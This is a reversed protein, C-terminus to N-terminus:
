TRHSPYISPAPHLLCSTIPKSAAMNLQSLRSVGAGAQDHKNTVKDIEDIFVIGTQETATVARNKIDDENILRAAEKDKVIKMAAKVTLRHAKKKGSNMSSFMNKLQSTMDELGPPAMIEIGTPSEAVKIQSKRKTCNARDSNKASFRAHV